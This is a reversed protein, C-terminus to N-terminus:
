IDQRDLYGDIARVSSNGMFTRLSVKVGLRDALRAV